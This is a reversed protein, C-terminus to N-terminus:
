SLDEPRSRFLKGCLAVPLHVNQRGQRQLV